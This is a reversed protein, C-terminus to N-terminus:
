NPKAAPPPMPAPKPAAAPEGSPRMVPMTTPAPEKGPPYVISAETMLKDKYTRFFTARKQDLLMKVIQPKVKEFPAMEGPKHLAVKIIHYGFQTEVVNSLEGPKLAFAADEFPQVMQGRTFMGLDGGRAKSPCDSNEKALTAFDAGAKLQQLLKEAKEKAQAKAQNADPNNHDPVVLIHSAQVQEPTNYDEKSQEYFALAEADNIDKSGLQSDLLKEYGVTKGIERKVQEYDQGQAQLMAKFADISMGQQALIETIKNNVDTDSVTIGVKKVQEDLLRELIMAELMQGRMRSKYQEAMAPTLKSGLRALRPMIRADLQGETIVSGNVTVAVENNEPAPAPKPLNPETIPPKAEPAVPMAPAKQAAPATTKAAPANADKVTMKADKAPKAAAFVMSASVFVALVALKMSIKM